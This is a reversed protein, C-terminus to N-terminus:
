FPYLEIEKVNKFDKTNITAIQKIQNAIGIGAIEFDHIKLGTPQYEKLLDILIQYSAPSPYLITVFSSIESIIQVAQQVTLASYPHRTIVTLFETLNKSTTYLQLSTDLLLKNCQKFYQSDEDISYIFVNTDVLIRNM